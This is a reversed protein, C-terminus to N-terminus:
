IGRTGPTTPKYNFLKPGFYIEGAIYHVMWIEGTTQFQDAKEGSDFSFM